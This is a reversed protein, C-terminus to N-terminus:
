PQVRAALYIQAVGVLVQLVALIISVGGIWLVAWFTYWQLPNRRDRWLDRVRSPQQRMNYRQLILLRPGFVPFDNRVSYTDSEQLQGNIDLASSPFITGPLLTSAKNLGTFGLFRWHSLLPTTCITVLFPDNDDTIVSSITSSRQSYKKSAKTSSQSLLQGLLKRSSSSQGFLLRYSLLIERHLASEEESTDTYCQSHLLKQTISKLVQVDGNCLVKTACFSPFRYVSLVRTSRDFALHATLTDVWKLKVRGITSLSSYNLSSEYLVDDSSGGSSQNGGNALYDGPKQVDTTNSQFYFFVKAIPRRLNSNATELTSTVAEVDLIPKIIASTWCLVAFMARLVQLKDYSEIENESIKSNELLRKYAKDMCSEEDSLAQFARIVAFCWHWCGVATLPATCGLIRWITGFQPNLLEEFRSELHSCFVLIGPWELAHKAPLQFLLEIAENRLDTEQEHSDTCLNTVIAWSKKFPSLTFKPSTIRVGLIKPRRLWGPIRQRSSRNKNGGGGLVDTNDKAQRELDVDVDVAIATDDTQQSRMSNSASNSM